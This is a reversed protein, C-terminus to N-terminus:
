ATGDLAAQAQIRAERLRCAPCTERPGPEHHRAATLAIDIAALLAGVLTRWRANDALLQTGYVHAAGPLYSEGQKFYAAIVAVQAASMVSADPAANAAYNGSPEYDRQSGTYVAEGTNEAETSM